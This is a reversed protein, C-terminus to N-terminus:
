RRWRRRSPALDVAHVRHHALAELEDLDVSSSSGARRPRGPASRASEPEVHGVAGDGVEGVAGHQELAGAGLVVVEADAVGDLDRDRGPLLLPPDDAIKSSLGTTKEPSREGRMSVEVVGAELRGVVDQDDEGLRAGLRARLVPEVLDDGVQRDHGDLVLRREGCSCRSGISWNTSIIKASSPSASTM